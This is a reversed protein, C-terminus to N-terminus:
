RSRDDAVPHYLTTQDRRERQTEGLIVKYGQHGLHIEQLVGCVAPFCVKDIKDPDTVRYGTDLAANGRDFEIRRDATVPRRWRNIREVQAHVEPNILMRNKIDTEIDAEVIGRRFHLNIGPYGGAKSGVHRFQM